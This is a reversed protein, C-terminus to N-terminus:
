LNQEQNKIQNKMMKKQIKLANCLIEINKNAQAWSNNQWM